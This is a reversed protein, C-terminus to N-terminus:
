DVELGGRLVQRVHCLLQALSYPKRLVQRPHCPERGWSVRQPGHGTVVLVRAQPHCQHLRELCTQGDMVPMALDMIVLDHPRGQSLADRYLALAEEGQSATSVRYGFGELMEAAIDRLLPEDDVVLVREGQGRPLDLAEGVSASGAPAQETAPLYVTFCAGQGPQSHVSIHGDHAKLISYAVSLGLGTGKGPEKTTFFPDFVRAMVEPSMGRGSDEVKLLVYPGERAWPNHQVFAADLDVLRTRLTIRGGASTADRANLALNFLVQEMQAANALVPPLNVEEQFVLDIRPSNTQHLLQWVGQAVQNLDVATKDGAELRTLTLMKSTLDAARQCGQDIKALYSGAGPPLGELLGLLQGYGRLAMLLNNFEHAVGGALTGVAEMKQAHRLQAELEVQDGIDKLVGVMGTVRGRTDLNPGGGLTFHRQRGDKDLLIGREESITFGEDRLRRFMGRAVEVDQPRVFDVFPRGLLEQPAHGLLRQWAPNVYTFSGDVGLTFIIDPANETLSRFREESIALADLARRRQVIKWMADMLLAVQRVDADDYPDQKNATAIVAVVRGSDNVPVSLYRTIALHGDPYGMKRPHAQYDNAIVPARRRIAEGWLGIDKLRYVRPKDATACQEMAARSRAMITMIGQQEDVFGAYGIASGTLRVAEELTYDVIAQLPVNHMQGLKVLAELRAEDLRLDEEAQRRETIDYVTGLMAPQGQYDIPGATFDVWRADGNRGLLQFEYHSPVTQGEQRALGRSRVLDRFDPHVVEWFRVNQIEQASYGVLRLGAPNMYRFYEGHIIFIGSTTTETLIRFKAESERLALAAQGGGALDSASMLLVPRGALSLLDMSVVLNAVQGDKRRLDLRLGRLRGELMLRGVLAQRLSPDPYFGMELAQRGIVEQRTYGTTTLFVENVDLMVGEPLTSLTLCVPSAQFAREFLQKSEELLSQATVENLLLLRQGRELHSGQALFRRSRGDPSAMELDLEWTERGGALRWADLFEQCRAPDAVARAAWAALTHPQPPLDGALALFPPNAHILRDDQDLLALPLPPRELLGSLLGSRPGPGAGPDASAPAMTPARKPM